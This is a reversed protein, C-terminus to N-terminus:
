RIAPIDVPAALGPADLETALQKSVQRKVDREVAKCRTQQPQLLFCAILTSFKATRFFCWGGFGCGGTILMRGM